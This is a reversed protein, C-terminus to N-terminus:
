NVNNVTNINEMHFLRMKMGEDSYFPQDTRQETQKDTKGNTWKDAQKNTWKDKQADTGTVSFLLM